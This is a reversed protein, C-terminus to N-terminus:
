QKQIAALVLAGIEEARTQGPIHAAFQVIFTPHRRFEAIIEGGLEKVKEPSLAGQKELQALQYRLKRVRFPEGEQAKVGPDIGEAGVLSLSFYQKEGSAMAKAHRVLRVQDRPVRV